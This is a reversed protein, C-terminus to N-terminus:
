MASIFDIFEVVMYPYYYSGDQYAASGFGMLNFNANRLLDHMSVNNVVSKIMANAFGISDMYGVYAREKWYRSPVVGQKKLAAKIADSDRSANSADTINNQLMEGCYAQATKALDDNVILPRTGYFVLYANILEACETKMATLVASPYSYSLSGSALNTMDDPTYYASFAQICYTSGDGNVDVFAAVRANTTAAGYAAAKGDDTDYWNFRQWTSTNAALQTSPTGAKILSGYSMTRSIGCIGVVKGSKLYVLIYTSYQDSRSASTKKGNPRFAIVDFGQPSKETRKVDTSLTGLITNVQSTTLGLALKYTGIQFVDGTLAINKGPTGTVKDTSTGTGPKKTTAPQKGTSAKKAKVTVKCVYKKKGVKAVIKATGKRKAKVVGKKSVTAVKKKTSSWKIKKKNNKLKLTTKKGVTLTIKKKNLAVKKKKAAASQPTVLSLCLALVLLGAGARKIQNM